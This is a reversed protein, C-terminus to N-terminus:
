WAAHVITGAAGVAWAEGDVGRVAFLHQESPSDVREWRDNQLRAITGEGGVLWTTDASGWVSDIAFNNGAKTLPLTPSTWQSGTWHVAIGQSRDGGVAWVDDPSTGWVDLLPSADSSADPADSWAAGDWRLMHDTRGVTWVDHADTGWVGAMANSNPTLGSTVVDHWASGDFHSVRDGVLWVDNAASGWVSQFAGAIAVPQLSTGDYHLVSAASPDGAIGVAYVDTPGSAWVRLLPIGATTVQSWTAGDWHLMVGTGGTGPGGSGFDGGVAWVDDPANAWVGYLTSM